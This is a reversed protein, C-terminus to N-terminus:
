DAEYIMDYLKSLDIYRIRYDTYNGYYDNQSYESYSIVNERIKRYTLFSIGPKVLELISDLLYKDPEPEGPISYYSSDGDDWCSGGSQGGVEWSEEAFDTETKSSDKHYSDEYNEKKVWAIFDEKDDFSMVTTM